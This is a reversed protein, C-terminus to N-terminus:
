LQPSPTKKGDKSHASFKMSTHTNETVCCFGVFERGWLKHWCLYFNLHSSQFFFFTTYQSTNHPAPHSHQFRLQKVDATSANGELSFLTSKLSAVGSHKNWFKAKKKKGHYSINCFRVLSNYQKGWWRARRYEREGKRERERKTASLQTGDWNNFRQLGNGCPETFPLKMRLEKKWRKEQEGPKVTSFTQSRWVITQNTERPSAKGQRM